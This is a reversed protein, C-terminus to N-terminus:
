TEHIGDHCLALYRMENHPAKIMMCIVSRYLETEVWNQPHVGQPHEPVEWREESGGVEHSSKRSSPLKFYVWATFAGYM